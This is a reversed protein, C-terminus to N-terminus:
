VYWLINICMFRISTIVQLVVVINTESAFGLIHTGSGLRFTQSSCSGNHVPKTVIVCRLYKYMKTTNWVTKLFKRLM